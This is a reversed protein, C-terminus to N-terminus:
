PRVTSDPAPPFLDPKGGELKVAYSLATVFREARDKDKFFIVVKQTTETRVPKLECQGDTKQSGPCTPQLELRGREILPKLDTTHFSVWTLRPASDLFSLYEHTCQPDAGCSTPHKDWYATFLHSDYGGQKSQISSPDIDGLAVTMYRPFDKQEQKGDGDSMIAVQTADTPLVMVMPQSSTITITTGSRWRPEEGEPYGLFLNRHEPEVMRNMFEVAAILDPPPQATGSVSPPADGDQTQAKVPETVNPLDHVKSFKASLLRKADNVPIAFNLNEGGEIRSTTIGIVEGAMNFLPGGSSGPSIPATVQLFKGGHEKLTRIASVIGSSVSSEFSLPNGIAVVEEGVQIRDSDGLTVTRFNEGHAKIVAVDRSKDSALVGDVGYFAGDPLKVIASDGNEIVHYNTVIRGDKSILFGSGQAIAHGDKDSMIISVIAGNAAKAIAPIDKRPPVSQAAVVGALLFLLLASKM